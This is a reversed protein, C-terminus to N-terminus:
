PVYYTVAVIESSGERSEKTEGVPPAQARASALEAHDQAVHSDHRRVFWRNTLSHRSTQTRIRGYMSIEGFLVNM